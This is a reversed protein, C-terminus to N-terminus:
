YPIKPPLPPPSPLLVSLSPPLAPCPLTVLRFIIAYMVLLMAQGSLFLVLVLAHYEHNKIVAQYNGPVARASDSSRALAFVLKHHGGGAFDNLFFIWLANGSSFFHQGVSVDPPPPPAATRSTTQESLLRM